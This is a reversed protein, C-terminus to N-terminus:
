PIDVVDPISEDSVLTALDDILTTGTPVGNLDSVEQIFVKMHIPLQEAIETAIATGHNPDKVRGDLFGPGLRQQVETKPNFTGVEISLDSANTATSELTSQFAKGIDLALVADDANSGNFEKFHITEEWRRDTLFTFPTCDFLGTGDDVGIQGKIWVSPRRKSGPPGLIKNILSPPIQSDAPPTDDVRKVRFRVSKYEGAPVAINISQEVDPDNNLLDLGFPGFAVEDPTSGSLVSQNFQVKDLIVYVEELWIKGGSIAFSTPASINCSSLPGLAYAINRRQFLDIKNLFASSLGSNTEAILNPIATAGMKEISTIGLTPEGGGSPNGGGGCAVFIMASLLSFAIGIYFRRKM